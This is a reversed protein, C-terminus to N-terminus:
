LTLLVVMLVSISSTVIALKTRKRLKQKVVELEKQKDILAHSCEDLQKYQEAIVIDKNRIIERNNQAIAHWYSLSRACLVVLRQEEVSTLSALKPYAILTDLREQTNGQFVLLILFTFLTLIRKM